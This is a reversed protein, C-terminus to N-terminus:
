ITKNLDDDEDDDFEDDELTSETIDDRDDEDDDDDQEDTTSDLDSNNSALSRQENPDTYNGLPDNTQNRHVGDSMYESGESTSSDDGGESGGTWNEHSEDPSNSQSRDRSTGHQPGYEDKLSSYKEEDRTVVRGPDRENEM